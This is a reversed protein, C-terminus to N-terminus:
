VGGEEFCCTRITGKHCQFLQPVPLVGNFYDTRITGKHFQFASGGDMM